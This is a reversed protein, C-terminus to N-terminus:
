SRLTGLFGRPTAAVLRRPATLPHLGNFSQTARCPGSTPCRHLHQPESHDILSSHSGSRSRAISAVPSGTSTITESFPSKQGAHRFADSRGIACAKAWASGSASGFGSRGTPYTACRMLPGATSPIAPNTPTRHCPLGVDAEFRGRRRAVSGARRDTESPGSPGGMECPTQQGFALREHGLSRTTGGQTPCLVPDPTHRDGFAPRRLKSAELAAVSKRSSGDQTVISNRWASKLPVLGNSAPVRWGDEGIRM